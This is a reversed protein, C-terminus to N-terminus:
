KKVGQVHFVPTGTKTLDAHVEVGNKFATIYSYQTDNKSIKEQQIVKMVYYTAQLDDIDHHLIIKSM